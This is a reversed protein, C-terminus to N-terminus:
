QLSNFLELLEAYCANHQAQERYTFIKSSVGQRIICTGTNDSWSAQLQGLNSDWVYIVDPSAFGGAVPFDSSWTTDLITKGSCPCLDSVIDDCADGIGDMDGDLQMPNGVAPCNDCVDGHGDSDSDTQDNPQNPCNDMGNPLGDNDVDECEPFPVDGLAGIIRDYVRTCAQDSAQPTPSDCDMAECYANCLGNVQGSYGWKTCIDEASPTLGDATGGGQSEAVEIIAMAEEVTMNKVTIEEPSVAVAAQSFMSLSAVLLGVIGFKHTLM